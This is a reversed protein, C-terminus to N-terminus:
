KVFHIIIAIVLLALAIYSLNKGLGYNKQRVDLSLAWLVVAALAIIFVISM